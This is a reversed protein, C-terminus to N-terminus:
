VFPLGISSRAPLAVGLCIRQSLCQLFSSERTELLKSGCGVVLASADPRGLVLGTLSRSSMKRFLDDCLVNMYDNVIFTGNEVGSDKAFFRGRMMLLTVSNM